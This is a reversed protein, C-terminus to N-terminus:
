IIIQLYQNRMTNFEVASGGVDPHMKKVLKRYEQKIDEMDNLGLFYQTDVPPMSKGPDPLAMFGTFLGDLLESGGWRELGRIAQVSLFLAWLNHEPKDWKDCAMAKGTGKLDFYVVVGADEINKQDAYFGGGRARRQLNSSIICNKAGLRKLESALEDGARSASHRGFQALKPYKTRTQQPLWQLPFEFNIM